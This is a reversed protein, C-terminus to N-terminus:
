SLKLDTTLDHLFGSGICSFSFINLLKKKKERQLNHIRVQQFVQRVPSQPIIVHLVLQNGLIAGDLYIRM